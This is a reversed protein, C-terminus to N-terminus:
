PARWCSSRERPEAGRRDAAWHTVCGVLAGVFAGILLGGSSVAPWVHGAVSLALVVGTLIGLWSGLGAGILAARITTPRRADSEGTRPLITQRPHHISLM